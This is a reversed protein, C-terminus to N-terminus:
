GNWKEWINNDKKVLCWAIYCNESCVIVVPFESLSIEKYKYYGVYKARNNCM